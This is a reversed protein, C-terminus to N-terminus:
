ENKKEQEPQREEKINGKSADIRLLHFNISNMILDQFMAEYLALKWAAEEGHDKVTQFAIEKRAIVYYLGARRIELKIAVGWVLGNKKLRDVIIKANFNDEPNAKSYMKTYYSLARQLLADVLDHLKTRHALDLWADEIEEEEPSLEPDGEVEQLHAEPNVMATVQELTVKEEVPLSTTVEEDKNIRMENNEM